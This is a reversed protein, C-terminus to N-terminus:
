RSEEGFSLGLHILCKFFLFCFYFYGLVVFSNLVLGIQM